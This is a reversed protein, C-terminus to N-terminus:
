TKHHQGYQQIRGPYFTIIIRTDGRTRYVVRLVHMADLTTQAITLPARSHDTFESHEVATVVM